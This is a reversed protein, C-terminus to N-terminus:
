RRADIAVQTKRSGAPGHLTIIPPPCNNGTEKIDDLLGM